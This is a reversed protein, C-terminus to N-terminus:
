FRHTIQFNVQAGSTGNRSVVPVYLNVNLANDSDFTYRGGPGLSVESVESGPVVRDNTQNPNLSQLFYGNFGLRIEKAVEYSSAFNGYVIQGAQGSTYIVGPIQPPNSFNSSRFSYQYNLRTSMELRSTPLYTIAIYPNIGWFGSGQNLSDSAKFGGTPSSVMLQVRFSLVPRGHKRYVRSQYGPGWMLDGIGSGNSNLKVPSNATFSSTLSIFPVAVTFGVVDGGFPHWNSSYAIQTIESFIQISPSKFLRSNQGEADTIRDLDEYRGYQLWTFGEDTRGFGDFFSTRGLNIAKPPSITDPLSKAPAALTFSTLLLISTCIGANPIRAIM